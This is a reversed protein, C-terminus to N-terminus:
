AVERVVHEDLQDRPYFGDRESSLNPLMNQLMFQRLGPSWIAALCSRLYTTENAYNFQKPAQFWITFYNLSVLVGGVDGCRAADIFNQLVLGHQIILTINEHIQDHESSARRNFDVM